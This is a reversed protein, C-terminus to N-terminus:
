EDTSTRARDAAPLTFAFTMGHDSNPCAWIRGESAEIIAKCVTLGLGTGNPKTTVFPEFLKELRGPSVGIGRDSVDVEVMGDDRAAVAIRLTRRESCVHSMAAIANVILNLLVQELQTRDIVVDCNPQLNTKVKVAGAIFESRLLELLSSVVEASDLRERRPIEKRALSRLGAVIAGARKDDRVIDQLIARIEEGPVDDNRMFRLGAQANALIATLPQNVEHAIAATLTGATLIRGAHWLEMRLRRTELEANHEATIDQVSCLARESTETGPLWRGRERIVHVSGDPWRIRYDVSYERQRLRALRLKQRVRLREEPETIAEIDSLSSIDRGVVDPIRDRAEVRGTSFDRVWSGLRALAQAEGLRQGAGRLEEEAGARALAGVLTQGLLQVRHRYRERWTRSEPVDVLVLAYRSEGALDIRIAVCTRRSAMDPEGGPIADPPVAQATTFVVVEEGAEESREHDLVRRCHGSLWRRLSADAGPGGVLVSGPVMIPHPVRGVLACCEAGFLAAIEALGEEIAAAVREGTATALRASIRAVLGEFRRLDETAAELERAALAQAIVEGVMALRNIWDPPWSGLRRVSGFSIAGVVREAAAIPVILAARVGSRRMLEREEGAAPPLDDISAMNVVRGARIEDVFWKVGLAFPGRPFPEVGHTAVSCITIPRPSDPILRFYSCRDFGLFEVLARLAREIEREVSGKEACALGALLDALLREFAILENDGRALPLSRVSETRIQM